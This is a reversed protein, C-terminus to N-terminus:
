RWVEARLEDLTPGLDTSPDALYTWLPDCVRGRTKEFHDVLAERAEADRGLRMLAHSLALPASQGWRFVDRARQYEDVAADLLGAREDLAGSFLLALYRVAPNASSSAARLHAAADNDHGLLVLVRGLHLAAQRNTQDSALAATYDEAAHRLRGIADAPITFPRTPPPGSLRGAVAGQIELTLGHAFATSAALADKSQPWWEHGRTDLDKALDAAGYADLLGSVTDRWRRAYEVRAGDIDVAGKLLAAAVDFHSASEGRRDTRVLRLGIDTQLMAAAELDDATWGRTEDLIAPRIGLDADTVEHGQRYGNVRASFSQAVNPTQFVLLAISFVASRAM